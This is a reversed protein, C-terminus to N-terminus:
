NKKTVSIDFDQIASSDSSSDDKIPSWDNDKILYIREAFIGFSGNKIETPRSLEARIEEGKVSVCFFWVSNNEKNRAEAEMEEFLYGSSGSVLDSVGDGKESIPNPDHLGCAHDVNQFLITMGLNKNEVAEVGKPRAIQWGDVNLFVMRLAAVGALYSYTGPANAPHLPTAENRAAVAAFAVNRLSDATTGFQSLASNVEYSESYIVAPSM